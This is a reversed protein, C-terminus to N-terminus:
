SDLKVFENKYTKGELETRVIINKDDIVDVYERGSMKKVTEESTIDDWETKEEWDIRLENEGSMNYTGKFVSLNTSYEVTGDKYFEYAVDSADMAYVGELIIQGNYESIVLRNNVYEFGLEREFLYGGELEEGELYHDYIELDKLIINFTYINNEKSKFNIEYLEFPIYSGACNCFAVNDNINTYQSFNETFYEESVYELLASKFDSYKTNSRIYSSPDYNNTCLQNINEETELGLVILIGPMPGINSNEYARLNNSIYKDLTEKALTESEKETLENFKEVPKSVIEEPIEEIINETVFVEEIPTENIITNQTQLNSIVNSSKLPDIVCAAKNIAQNQKYIYIGMIVIVISLILIIFTSLTILPKQTKINQAETQIPNDINESQNQKEDM